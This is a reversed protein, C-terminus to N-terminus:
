FSFSATLKIAINDKSNELAQAGYRYYVGIGIGSPGSVILKDVQIGSEM